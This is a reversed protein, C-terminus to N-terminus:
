LYPLHGCLSFPARLLSCFSVVCHRQAAKPKKEDGRIGWAWVGGVCECLAHLAAFFFCTRNSSPITDSPAHLFVLKSTMKM